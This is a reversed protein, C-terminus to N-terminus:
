RDHRAGGFAPLPPLKFPSKHGSAGRSMPEEIFVNAASRAKRKPTLLDSSTAAELFVSDDILDEYEDEPMILSALVAEEPPKYVPM